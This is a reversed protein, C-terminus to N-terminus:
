NGKYVQSGFPVPAGIGKVLNNKQVYGREGNDIVVQYWERDYTYGTIRVTQNETVEGLPAYKVSPGHYIVGAKVVHALYETGFPDSDVKMIKNEAMDSPRLVGGVSREEAYKNNHGIQERYGATKAVFFLCLVVVALLLTLPFLLQRRKIESANWYPIKVTKRPAFNLKEIFLSLLRKVEPEDKTLYEAQKAYIWAMETQNEQAYALANHILLKLNDEDNGQSAQLNFKVAALNKAFGGKGWWGKLWNSVSTSFALSGAESINCIDRSEKVQGKVVKRQKLVRLAKDDKGSQNKYIKLSGLTPFDREDYVVSLLDYELRTKDDKLVDYAVSVKQFMDVAAPDENHDPHWYKAKEYYSSKILASDARSNVGLVAYYGLADSKVKM